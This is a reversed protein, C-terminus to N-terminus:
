KGEPAPTEPAAPAAPTESAAPTQTAAPAAQGEAKPTEPNTPAAAKQSACAIFLVLVIVLAILKKM